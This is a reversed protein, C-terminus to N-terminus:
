RRVEFTAELQIEPRLSHWVSCYKERSLQIAREIAAVPVDGKMAFHLNFSTFRSPLDDLRQGVLSATLEHFPHRGKKVIDVVDIAMCGALAIALAQTPSAGAVGDSDVIMEAVGSRAVFRLDGQWVLTATTPPKAM